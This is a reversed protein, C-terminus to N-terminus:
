PRHHTSDLRHGRVSVCRVRTRGPSTGNGPALNPRMVWVGTVTRTNVCRKLEVGRPARRARCRATFWSWLQPMGYPVGTESAAATMTASSAALATVCPRTGPRSKWSRSVWRAPRIRMSTVSVWLPGATDRRVARGCGPRARAHVGARRHGRRGSPPPRRCAARWSRGPRSRDRDARRRSVCPVQHGPQM